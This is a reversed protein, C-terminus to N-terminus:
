ASWLQKLKRVWKFPFFFLVGQHSKRGKLWDCGDQTPSHWPHLWLAVAFYHIHLIHQAHAPPPSGHCRCYIGEFYLTVAALKNLDTSHQTVELTFSAQESTGNLSFQFVKSRRMFGLRNIDEIYSRCSHNLRVTTASQFSIICLKVSANDRMPFYLKKPWQADCSM